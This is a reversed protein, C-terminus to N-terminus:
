SADQTRYGQMRFGADQIRCRTDQTRCRADQIRSGRGALEEKNRRGVRQIKKISNQSKRM